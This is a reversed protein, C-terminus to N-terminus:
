QQTLPLIVRFGLNAGRTGPASSGRMTVRCNGASDGWCGGRAVYLQNEGGYNDQCWEWVNGSMDCIGISNPAKTGVTHPQRDSNSKFWAVDHLDNSGAYKYSDNKPGSKAAYMWETETPLRYNRGTLANLKKFFEQTDFWSVNEVPNDFAKSGSPNFGMVNQYQAQTVEYKGIYFGQIGFTSGSGEVYVLEIGDPNYADGNTRGSKSNSTTSSKTASGPTTNGQTVNSDNSTTTSQAEPTETEAPLTEANDASGASGTNSNSSSSSNDTDSSGTNSGSYDDDDNQIVKNKGFMEGAIVNIINLLDDEGNKTSKSSAKLVELTAVDIMKYSIRYNSGIRRLTAYCVFDAGVASGFEKLQNDAVAGTEQFKFEKLAQEYNTGRAVLTYGGSNAVGEELADQVAGRVDDSVTGITPVVAVKKKEQVQRSVAVGATFALVLVSFIIKKIM